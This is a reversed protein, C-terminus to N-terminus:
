KQAKKAKAQLQALAQMFMGSPLDSLIPIKYVACFKEIETDTDIILQNLTATQKENITNKIGEEDDEGTEIMLVKLMASKTAYSLAKGPAKDSNDEAHAEVTVTLFDHADEMNVFKIDYMAEFRIKKGGSKTEGDISIGKEKQMPVIIIGQEVFFNRTLTTVADHSVAKYSNQGFGVTSDKKVYAVSKRIENLKEYINMNSEQSQKM